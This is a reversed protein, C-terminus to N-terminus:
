HIRCHISCLELYLISSIAHWPKIKLPFSFVPGSESFEMEGEGRRVDLDGQKRPTLLSM